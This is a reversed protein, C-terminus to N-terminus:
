VEICGDAAGDLPATIGCASVSTLSLRFCVASANDAAPYGTASAVSAEVAVRPPPGGNELNPGRTSYRHPSTRLHACCRNLRGDGPFWRGRPWWRVRKGHGHRGPKAIIPRLIRSGSVQRQALSM